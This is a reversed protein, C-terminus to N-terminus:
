VLLVLEREFWLQNQYCGAIIRLFEKPFIGVFRTTLIELCLTSCIAELVNLTFFNGELFAKHYKVINM